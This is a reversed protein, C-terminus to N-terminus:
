QERVLKSVSECTMQGMIKLIRELLRRRTDETFRFFRDGNVITLSMSLVDSIVMLDAATIPEQEVPM